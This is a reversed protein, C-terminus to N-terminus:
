SSPSLVQRPKLSNPHAGCEGQNDLNRFAETAEEPPPATSWTAFSSFHMCAHSLDRGLPQFCSLRCLPACTNPLSRRRPCYHILAHPFSHTFMDLHSTGNLITTSRAPRKMAQNPTSQPAIEDCIGCKQTQCGGTTTDGVVVRAHCAPSQKSMLKNNSEKNSPISDGVGREIHVMFTEHFWCSKNHEGTLSILLIRAQYHFSSINWHVVRPCRARLCSIYPYPVNKKWCCTDSYSTSYKSGSQGNTKPLWIKSCRVM